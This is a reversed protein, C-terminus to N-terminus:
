ECDAPALGLSRQIRYFTKLAERNALLEIYEQDLRAGRDGVIPRRYFRGSRLVKLEDQLYGILRELNEMLDREDDKLREERSSVIAALVAAAKDDVLPQADM